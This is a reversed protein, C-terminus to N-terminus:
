SQQEQSWIVNYQAGDALRSELIGFSEDMTLPIKGPTCSVCVCVQKREWQDLVFLILVSILDKSRYMIWEFAASAAVSSLRPLSRSVIRPSGRQYSSSLTCCAVNCSVVCVDECMGCGFKAWQTSSLKRSIKYTHGHTNTCDYACNSCTRISGCMTPSARITHLMICLYLIKSSWLNHHICFSKINPNVRFDFATNKNAFFLHKACKRTRTSNSQKM